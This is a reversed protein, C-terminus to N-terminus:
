PDFHSQNSAVIMSSSLDKLGSVYIILSGAFFLVFASVALTIFNRTMEKGVKNPVVVEKLTNTLVFLRFSVFVYVAAGCCM